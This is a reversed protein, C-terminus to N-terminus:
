TLRTEMSVCPGSLNWPIGPYSERAFLGVATSNSSVLCDVIGSISNEDDLIQDTMQMSLYFRGDDLGDRSSSIQTHQGPSLATLFCADIPHNAYGRSLHDLGTLNIYVEFHEKPFPVTWEKLM